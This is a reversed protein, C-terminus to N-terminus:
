MFSGGNADLKGFALGQQDLSFHHPQVKRVRTITAVEGRAPHHHAELVEGSHTALSKAIHDGVVILLLNFPQSGLSLFRSGALGGSVQLSSTLSASGGCQHGQKCMGECKVLRGRM